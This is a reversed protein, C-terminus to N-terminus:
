FAIPGSSMPVLVATALPITANEDDPDPFAVSVRVATPLRDKWDLKETDWEKGWERKREDYYEINFSAVGELIPFARGGVETRDDLWPEERRLVNYRGREEPHAVVEYSIRCQDSQKSGRVLRLHSFASFRIADADGRDEGIFFAKMAAQPAAAAAAGAQPAALTSAAVLFAASVDDSIKRLAVDASHYIMDRGETREKSRLSQSTSTWILTMIVGLIGVSVMIELLTFGRQSRM